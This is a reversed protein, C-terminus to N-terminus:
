ELTSLFCLAGLPLGLRALGLIDAYFKMNTRLPVITDINYTQKPRGIQAGDILGRDVILTKMVGPGLTKVLEDVLGYLLPCEHREGSVVRAAVVFFFDM